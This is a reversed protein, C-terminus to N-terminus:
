DARHPCFDLLIGELLGADAVGISPQRFYRCLAILLELGPIIIDGRGSEIGPLREREAVKLPLLQELIAMLWCTDLRHNNILSRDYETLRLHLAALTTITGATGVLRCRGLALPTVGAHLLDSSFKVVMDRIFSQRHEVEPMEECLQVVGLPYSNSFLITGSDYLVLETSGGGIDVILVTEPAPDLVSMVGAASLRAEERGSIIELELRTKLKVLNVLHQGNVARRLAATGVVRVREVDQQQLIEAFGSFASLTREISERALGKETCYGGALRTTQQQYLVPEIGGSGCRAILMRVTNSGVDIAAYM